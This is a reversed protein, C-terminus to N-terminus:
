PASMSANVSLTPSSPRSLANPAITTLCTCPSDTPVTTPLRFRVRSRILISGALPEAVGTRPVPSPSPELTRVFPHGHTRRAVALDLRFGNQVANKESPTAALWAATAGCAGSWNGGRETNLGQWTAAEPVQEDMSAAADVGKLIAWGPNAQGVDLRVRRPRTPPRYRLVSANRCIGCETMAPSSGCWPNRLTTSQVHSPAKNGTLTGVITNGLRVAFPGPQYFSTGDINLTSKAVPVTPVSAPKALAIERRPFRAAFRLSVPPTPM